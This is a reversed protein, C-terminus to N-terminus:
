SITRWGYWAACCVGFGITSESREIDLFHRAGTHARHKKDFYNWSRCVRWDVGVGEYHITDPDRDWERYLCWEPVNGAMDMVGQTTKLQPEWEARLISASRYKM